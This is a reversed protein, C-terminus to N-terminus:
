RKTPGEVQKTPTAAQLRPAKPPEFTAGIKLNGWQFGWDGKLRPSVGSFMAIALSLGVIAPWRNEAILYGAAGLCCVAIVDSRCVPGWLRNPDDTDVPASALRKVVASDVGPNKV